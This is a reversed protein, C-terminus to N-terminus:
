DFHDARRNNQASGDASVIRSVFVRPQVGKQLLSLLVEVSQPVDRRLNCVKEGRVAEKWGAVEQCPNKGCVVM